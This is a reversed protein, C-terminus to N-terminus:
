ACFWLLFFVVQIESSPHICAYMPCPATQLKTCSCALKKGLFYSSQFSFGPPELNLACDQQPAKGSVWSGIGEVLSGPAVALIKCILEYILVHEKQEGAWAENAM